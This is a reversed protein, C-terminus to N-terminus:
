IPGTAAAIDGIWVHARSKQKDVLAAVHDLDNTASSTAAEGSCRGGSARGESQQLLVSTAVRTGGDIRVRALIFALRLARDGVTRSTAVQSLCAASVADLGLAVVAWGQLGRM